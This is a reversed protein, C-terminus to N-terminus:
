FTVAYKQARADDKLKELHFGPPNCRPNRRSKICPTLSVVLDTEFLEPIRYVRCKQLIEWRTSILTHDIETAVGANSYWTWQHPKRKQFWSGGIRLRRSKAAFNQQHELNWFWPPGTCVEYGARSTGTVANFDVLVVFTERPPCQDVIFEIMAYFIKEETAYVCNYCEIRIESSGSRRVEVLAVIYLRLKM